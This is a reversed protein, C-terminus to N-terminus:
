KAPSEEHRGLVTRAESIRRFQEPRLDLIRCSALAKIERLQRERKALAELETSLADLAATVMQGISPMEPVPPLETTVRTVTGLLQEVFDKNPDQAEDESTVPSALATSNTDLSRM